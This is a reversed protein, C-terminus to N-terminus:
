TPSPKRRGQDRLTAADWLMLDDVIVRLGMVGSVSFPLYFRKAMDQLDREAVSLRRSLERALVLGGPRIGQRL